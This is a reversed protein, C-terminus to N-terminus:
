DDGSASHLAASRSGPARQTTTLRYARCANDRLVAQQEQATLQRVFELQAEVNARYTGAVTCVPWDTAFILRESGFAELAYEFYPRLTGASWSTWDAETPLGSIKTYVNPAEGLAVLDTRWPEYAGERVAPKALHDLVFTVDPHRRVVQLALDLETATVLLDFSLGLSGLLALSRAVNPSLLWDAAEDAQFVHRFGCLKDGDPGSCLLEVARAADPAALDTWGVVGAVFRERAALRLLTATEQDDNASQILLAAHVGADAALSRLDQLSFDRAIAPAAESTIWPQPTVALEWVHTHADLIFQSDLADMM